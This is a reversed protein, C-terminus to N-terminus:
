AWSKKRGAGVWKLSAWVQFPFTRASRRSYLNEETINCRAYSYYPRSQCFVSNLDHAVSIAAIDHNTWGERIDTGRGLNIGISM